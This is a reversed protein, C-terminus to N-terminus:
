MDHERSQHRSRPHLAYFEKNCDSHPCELLIDPEATNTWKLTGHQDGKETQKVLELREYKNMLRRVTRPKINLEEAIERATLPENSDLLSLYTRFTRRKRWGDPNNGRLSARQLIPFISGGSYDSSLGLYDKITDQNLGMAAARAAFTHRLGTLSVPRGIIEKAVKRHRPTYMLLWPITEFRSFWWQLIEAAHPDVVPLTRNTDNRHTAEFHDEDSRGQCYACPQDREVVKGLFKSGEAGSPKKRRRCPGNDPIRIIPNDQKDKNKSFEIWDRHLHAFENPYLGTGPIIGVPVQVAPKVASERLTELQKSSLPKESRDM